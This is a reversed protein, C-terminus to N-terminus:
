RRGLWAKAGGALVGLVLGGVHAGNAMSMLGTFGLVMWGLMFVWTTEHVGMGSGPDTRGRMYAYGLLGYVIGSLGLFLPGNWQYQVINSGVGLFLVLGAYRATRIRNEVMSGLMWLWYLNFILHLVDGHMLAPTFLRWVEGARVDAFSM